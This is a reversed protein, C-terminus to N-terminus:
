YNNQLAIRQLGHQNGGPNYKTIILKYQRNHYQWSPADRGCGPKEGILVQDQVAWPGQPSTSRALVLWNSAISPDCAPSGRFREVVMYYAFDDVGGSGAQWRIIDAAAVGVDNPFRGIENGTGNELTFQMPTNGSRRSWNNYFINTVGLSEPWYYYGRRFQTGGDFGHYGIYYGDNPVWTITPTGVNGAHYCGLWGGLNGEWGHVAAFIERGDTFSTGNTSHAMWVRQKATTGCHTPPSAMAVEFVMTLRGSQVLVKPAYVNGVVGFATTLSSASLAIGQYQWDYGDSSTSYGIDFIETEAGRRVRHYLFWQNNFFVASTESHRVQDDSVGSFWDQTWQPQQYWNDHLSNKPAHAEASTM